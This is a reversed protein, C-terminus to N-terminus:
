GGKFGKRIERLREIIKKPSYESLYMNFTAGTQLDTIQYSDEIKGFGKQIGDLRCNLKALALPTM